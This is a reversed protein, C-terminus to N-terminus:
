NPFFQLPVVASRRMRLTRIQKSPFTQQYIGAQEMAIVKDSSNEFQMERRM